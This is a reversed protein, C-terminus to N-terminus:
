FEKVKENAQSLKTSWISTSGTFGRAPLSWSGVDFLLFFSYTVLLLRFSKCTYIVIREAIIERHGTKRLWALPGEENQLSRMELASVIISIALEHLCEIWSTPSTWLTNSPRDELIYWRLFLESFPCAFEEYSWSYPAYLSRRMADSELRRAKCYWHSLLGYCKPITQSCLRQWSSTNCAASRNRAARPLRTLYRM